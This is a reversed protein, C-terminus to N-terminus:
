VGEQSRECAGPSPDPTPTSSSWPREAHERPAATFSCTSIVLRLSDAFKHRAVSAPEQLLGACPPFCAYHRNMEKLTPM